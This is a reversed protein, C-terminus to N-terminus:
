PRGAPTLRLVQLPPGPLFPTAEGRVWAEHGARYHASLPHGSQGGPMHLIGESERGPSVVLRESAGFDPSQVRPTSWDGSLPDAPMDLWPSLRPVALSLPHRMAVTNVRGWTCHALDACGAPLTRVTESAIDALWADWDAFRPDLLHAPRERLLRWATETFRQPPRWNFDPWRAQAEVTLMAFASAVVRREFERLLRYGADNVAARSSWGAVLKAAGQEGLRALAARLLPQWHALYEARDDLQIALLDAPMARDLAAIRERIQRARAAPAFNGDGIRAYDEGGVVRANASWAIGLPPDLLQPSEDQAVWGYWGAGAAHWGSPRTPDFGRRVPLRGSLVWGIRGARDAILVNQAPMGSGGVIQAAEDLDRAAELRAMALDTAGPRHATWALALERGAGDVGIVPGWITRRVVLQESAGGAVDLVEIEREFHRPGDATLYTDPGGPGPVLTILDQFDGYSNTFGWAVHGNSGAVILPVGPLSVGAVDLDGAEVVLRARYWVNPVRLTLHMDNALLAGGGAARSGALAWNNSGAAIREDDFRAGRHMTANRHAVREFLAPALRRLDVEDARPLPPEPLRSGDLPAEWDPDPETIFRYLPRPLVAALRGNRQEVNAELGQLDIWQAYVVLLTDEPRWPAPDERLLLYEFPKVRMAALAANVGAAYAELLAREGPTLAALVARATRRFQHLRIRRDRELLVPGLLAALEGAGTRRLLDMQFLRDQAHVYGTARAVDERTAGRIVPVGLADREISVTATLGELEAEGELQPLSARLALWAALAALLLLAAPVALGFGIVRPFLPHFLPRLGKRQFSPRLAKRERCFPQTGKKV